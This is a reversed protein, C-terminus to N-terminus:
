STAVKALYSLDLKNVLSSRPVSKVDVVYAPRSAVSTNDCLGGTGTSFNLPSSNFKVDVTRTM